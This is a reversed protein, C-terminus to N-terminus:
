NREWNGQLQGWSVAADRMHGLWRDPAYAVLGVLSLMTSTTADRWLWGPSGLVRFRGPCAPYLRARSLGNGRWYGLLYRLTQRPRPIFHRVRADPVWWGTGGERLISGLVKTEEYGFMNGPARGLDPDFPHRIQLERRVVMNAGFPLSGATIPAEQRGFDRAAYATEVVHFGRELWRPPTGDLWPEIPGGFIDCEPHRRMSDAYASLWRPAVLVDDDTWIIFSGSAARMAANRANSLGPKVEFARRLPLQSCFEDLVADTDDTCNNNVVILEWSAGAPSEVHRLQELTRRLLDARNWTCIAVTLHMSPVGSESM